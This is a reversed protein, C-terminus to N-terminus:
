PLSLREVLQDPPEFHYAGQTNSVSTGAGQSINGTFRELTAIRPPPEHPVVVADTM